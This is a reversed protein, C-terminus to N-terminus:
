LQLYRTSMPQLIPDSEFAAALEPWLIASVTWSGDGRASSRQNVYGVGIKEVTSCVTGLVPRGFGFDLEAVPFRRGSSVVLTPGGQGLVARSLMLGPRHCEIWDILDQFHSRTTVKSIAEHVKSSVDAITGNKLDEISAEGVALSLVNGIYDPSPDSEGNGMRGRGDVLWGMKCQAHLKVDIARVMLKWLYASFAEIKTRSQGDLSALKQLNSISEYEVHYLRKLLTKPTPINLIDELTCKAFAQDLSSHYTPPTRARLNRSHNPRCSIPIDRSIESWSLLFKHFASADGLAHDFSFTLSISGCSYRTLQWKKLGSDAWFFQFLYSFLLLHHEQNLSTSNILCKPHHGDNACLNFVRNSSTGM